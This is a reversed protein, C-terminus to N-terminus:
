INRLVKLLTPNSIQSLIKELSSYAPLDEIYKKYIIKYREEDFDFIAMYFIDKYCGVLLVFFPDQLQYKSDVKGIKYYKSFYIKKGGGIVEYLKGYTKECRGDYKEDIYYPLNVKIVRTNTGSVFVMEEEM